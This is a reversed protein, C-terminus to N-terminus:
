LYQVLGISISHIVTFGLLFLWNYSTKVAMVTGKAKFTGRAKRDSTFFKPLRTDWDVPPLKKKLIIQPLNPFPPPGPYVYTYMYIYIHIFFFTGEYGM